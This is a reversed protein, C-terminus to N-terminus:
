SSSFFAARSACFSISALSFSRAPCASSDGFNFFDPLSFDIIFIIIDLLKFSLQVVEILLYGAAKGLKISYDRFFLYVDSFGFFSKILKFKGYGVLPVLNVDLFVFKGKSM